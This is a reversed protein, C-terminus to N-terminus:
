LQKYQKKILNERSSFEILEIKRAWVNENKYVNLFPNKIIILGDLNLKDGRSVPVLYLFYNENYLKSKEIENRTWYFRYDRYSVAKVEIKREKSKKMKGAVITFSNIDYGAAVIEDSIREIKEVLLPYSQLRKKEFKVVEVEAQKGIKKQDEIKELLKNLSLKNSSIHDRYLQFCDECIFYKNQKPDLALFGMELLLNRLGSYKLRETTSPSAIFSYERSSFLSLFKEIYQTYCNNKFILNKIVFNGVIKEKDSGKKKKTILSHLQKQASLVSKKENVLGISKLFGVTEKFNLASESYKSKVYEVDLLRSSCLIEMLVHIQKFSIKEFQFIM